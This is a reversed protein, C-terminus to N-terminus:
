NCNHSLDAQFDIALSSFPQRAMIFLYVQYLKFFQKLLLTCINNNVATIAALPAEVFYQSLSTFVESFSINRYKM